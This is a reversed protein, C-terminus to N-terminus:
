SVKLPFFFIYCFYPISFPISGKQTRGNQGTKVIQLLQTKSICDLEALRRRWRLGMSPLHHRRHQSKGAGRGWSVREQHLLSMESSDDVSVGDGSDDEREEVHLSEFLLASYSFQIFLTIETPLILKSNFYISKSILASISLDLIHIRQHLVYLSKSDLVRAWELRFLIRARSRFNLKEPKLFLNEPELLFEGFSGM